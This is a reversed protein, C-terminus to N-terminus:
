QIKPIKTDINSFRCDRNSFANLDNFPWLLIL